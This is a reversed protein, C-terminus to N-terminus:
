RHFRRAMAQVLRLSKRVPSFVMTGLNFSAAMRASVTAVHFSAM